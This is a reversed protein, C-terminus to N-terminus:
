RGGKVMCIESWYVKELASALRMYLVFSDIRLYVFIIVVALLFALWRCTLLLVM